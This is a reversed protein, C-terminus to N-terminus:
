KDDIFGDQKDDIFGDLNDDIFGEGYIDFLTLRTFYIIIFPFLLIFVL